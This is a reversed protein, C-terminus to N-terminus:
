HKQPQSHSPVGVPIPADLRKLALPFHDTPVLAKNEHCGLCPVDEGTRAWTWSKQARIVSGKASLLEFRIPHDAPVKIYFSGDSEVPAEGLVKESHHDPQLTIVRVRAIPTTLRGNPAGASIYSDLCVVRGYDRDPHLISWYYRPIARSEVPVAEVSSFKPDNFIAKGVSKSALNFVYLGFHGAKSSSGSNEKAVVLRNGDLARVSWYVSSPPTVVTNHLAGPRIWALQGGAQRGAPDRRKVFMVTGDNLEEAGTRVYNPQHDWRFLNLGSGDTRLTYFVRSDDGKSGAVLSSGASVLIRGSRLVTEVQFNGPGYTIRHADTGNEQAVYIASDRGPGKGAIVTYVIQNRPLFDPQFCDASGHTIQRKSSGDVNMEWIQWSTGRKKQASFLVKAADFSIQPDAVAFFGATLNIASAAPAGPLFRALHSGQPFREALPGPVAAPAEVFIIAPLRNAGTSEPRALVTRLLGFVLGVTLLQIILLITRSLKM